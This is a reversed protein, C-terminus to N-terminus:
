KKVNCKTQFEELKGLLEYRLDHAKTEPGGCLGTDMKGTYSFHILEEAAYFLHEIEAAKVAAESLWTVIQAGAEKKTMGKLLAQTAKKAM